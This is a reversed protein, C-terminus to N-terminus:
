FDLKDGIFRAEGTALLDFYKALEKNYKMLADYDDKSIIKGLEMDEAIKNAKEIEQM